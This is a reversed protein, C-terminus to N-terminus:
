VCLEFLSSIRFGDLNVVKKLNILFFCVSYYFYVLVYVYMYIYILKWLVFIGICIYMNNLKLIDYVYMYKCYIINIM